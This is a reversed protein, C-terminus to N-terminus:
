NNHLRRLPVFAVGMLEERPPFGGPRLRVLEQRGLLDREPFLVRAGPALQALLAGPLEPAACSLLLGDYPGREAWGEAGDGARVEARFGLDGLTRRSHDALDADLEVGFPTAGIAELLALVYGSGSGVELVRDGPRVELAELMAAVMYPQSLTSGPGLFVPHDGHAEGWQSPDLFRHRPVRACAALVAPDRVGRAAIQDRVM